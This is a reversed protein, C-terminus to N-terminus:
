VKLPIFPSKERCFSFRPVAKSLRLRAIFVLAITMAAKNAIEKETAWNM